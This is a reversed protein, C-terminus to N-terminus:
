FTHSIGKNIKTIKELEVGQGGGGGGKEKPFFTKLFRQEPPIPLERRGEPIIIFVQPLTKSLPM